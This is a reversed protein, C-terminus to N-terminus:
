PIHHKLLTGPKTRGYLRKQTPAKQGQPPPRHYSSQDVFAAKANRDLAGLAQHGMAAMPTFPGQHSGLVSLWGDGLHGGPGLDDQLWLYPSTKQAPDQNKTPSSRQAAPHRIQPQLRLGPLVGRPHSSETAQFSKSLPFLNSQPLGMEIESEHFQLREWQSIDGQM